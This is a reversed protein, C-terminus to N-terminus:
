VRKLWIERWYLYNARPCNHFCIGQCAVGELVVTNSLQVIKGSEEAIIVRIPAAVRYRRGCHRAMEPEFQLGRNRGQADLTAEIEAASKIEVLEGAQLDLEASQTKKQQGTIQYFRRGHLLRWVRNALAMWLLFALRGFTMEGVWLDHLYHRVKGPPYDSTAAALETSQCFFRDNKTTPLQVSPPLRLPSPPASSNCDEGGGEAKRGGGEARRRGEEPKLWAKKWFFLCGRQCGGHASGDCRLGELFVTDGLSRM